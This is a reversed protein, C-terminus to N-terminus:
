VRSLIIEKLDKYELGIEISTKEGGLLENISRPVDGYTGIIERVSEFQCTFPKSSFEM